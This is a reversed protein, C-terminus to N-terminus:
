FTEDAQNASINSFKMLRDVAEGLDGDTLYVKRVLTAVPDKTPLDIGMAQALDQDFKTWQGYPDNERLSLFEDPSDSFKAYLGQCSAILVDANARIGWDDPVKGTDDKQKSRRDWSQGMKVADVPAYRVYIEPDSYRPVRLDTYLNNVIEARRAKLSFMPTNRVPEEGWVPATPEADDVTKDPEGAKHIVADVM